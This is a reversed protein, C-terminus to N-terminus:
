NPTWNVFIKSLPRKPLGKFRCCIENKLSFLLFIVKSFENKLVTNCNIDSDNKNNLLDRIQSKLQKRTYKEFLYEIVLFSGIISVSFYLTKRIM